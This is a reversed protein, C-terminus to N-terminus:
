KFLVPWAAVISAIAAIIGAMAAVVTWSLMMRFRKAELGRSAKHSAEEEADREKLWEIAEQQESPDIFAGFNLDDQVVKRGLHEFKKRKEPTIM